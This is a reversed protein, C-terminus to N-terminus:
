KSLDMNAKKEIKFSLVHHKKYKRSPLESTTQAGMLVRPFIHHRNNSNSRLLASTRVGLIVPIKVCRQSGVIAKFKLSEESFDTKTRVM